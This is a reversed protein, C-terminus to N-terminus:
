STLAESPDESTIVALPRVPSGTGGVFKLPSCIFAFEYVGAAALAELDLAEIIPVGSDVLLLKHAPLLSHGASPPLWEFAITDAGVIKAGQEVLWRAGALSPGPVGSEAGIYRERDTFYRGWGSRVLIVDGPVIVTQQLRVTLALDEATVEYAPSLCPLGLATPVDLLVGRQVIPKITEVGHVAFKGGVVAEKADIGGFIKGEFSVHSLADIHTGIHAGLIIIENSASSGDDRVMDGHRRELTMRFPPHNPSQPMGVFLPRGLDFIDLGNGLARILPDGDALVSPARTPVSDSLTPGKRPLPLVPRPDLPVPERPLPPSRDPSTPGAPHV